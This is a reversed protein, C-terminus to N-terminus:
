AAVWVESISDPFTMSITVHSHGARALADRTARWAIDQRNCEGSLHALFVRQLQPGAIEALMQAARANSLHGQRGSIRQKLQWPRKSNRLMEEDHNSEVVVASCKKLRERVLATPMGIDTVVGVSDNGSRVIFGVPEMADHPVSFPEIVLDGVAFASGTHFQNWALDACDAKASRVGQITGENAFLPIGFKAQLTKLGAIHDSHEHSVCVGHVSALSAGIKELRLGIEKASLGADILIATTESAIFTCNGSSGSGLICLRLSM